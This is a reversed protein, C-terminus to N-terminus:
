CLGRNAIMKQNEHLRLIIDPEMRLAVAKLASFISHTVLADDLARHPRIHEIALSRALSSLSYRKLSPLLISALEQTDYSPNSLNIHNKELFGLDFAVNQGVIPSAGIFERLDSHVTSFGPANDLDDQSIGTLDRIFPTIRKYPNVFTQFTELVQEGKFRVAGVEIIEDSEVSLGTTELDLAVCTEDYDIVLEAGM